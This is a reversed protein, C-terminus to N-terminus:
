AIEAIADFAITDPIGCIRCRLVTGPPPPAGKQPLPLLLKLYNESVAATYPSAEKPAEAIAEVTKGLWRRAYEARGQRALSLLAEVRSVAEGESVPNSFSFAETGPRRSYPFPHIWAFGVRRCLEYTKEFEGATEGPFGTIIDCALFPDEKLRRLRGVWQEIDEPTYRRRMRELIGRSGSQVSLHFHPRIRPHALIALSSDPGEALGEPEISSLRLAIRETGRILLELLGWLDAQGASCPAEPMRYQNLNVGTLVAEGLGRKELARLRTLVTEGDLSLSKGRALSVRCYSCRHDCGDQIKLFARSHFSFDAPNFRFVGAGEAEGRREQWEALLAPLDPHSSGPAGSFDRACGIYRPLDLLGNKDAGPVVFLRKPFAPSSGGGEGGPLVSTKAEGELAVLAKADMQAYCGTVILCASPKDRLAKRILRRAKQEARSTVTCTNIVLVDADEGWPVVRFGAIKFAEAISESELQNLKCGLTFLALSVM